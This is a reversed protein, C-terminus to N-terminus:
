PSHTTVMEKVSLVWESTNFIQYKIGNRNKYQFCLLAFDQRLLLKIPTPNKQKLHLAVAGIDKFLGAKKDGTENKRKRFGNKM